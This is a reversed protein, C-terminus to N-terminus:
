GEKENAEGKNEEEIKEKEEREEKKKNNNEIDEEGQVKHEERINMHMKIEGGIIANVCDPDDGELFVVVTFKDVDGVKFDKREELVAIDDSYFAKTGDEEKKTDGNMKAYVTSKGNHYIMIRVAEDVNKIVDDIGVEYWYNVTETGDNEIYFTYAIYNEGNHSGEYDKDIDSPLWKISINDMFNIEEAYLKRKVDRDDKNEYIVIGSQLAFQPDLTIVFKGGNYILALISFIIVILLLLALLIIKTYKFKKKRKVIKDATVIVPKGM